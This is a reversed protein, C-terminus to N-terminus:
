RFVLIIYEYESPKNDRLMVHTSTIADVILCMKINM